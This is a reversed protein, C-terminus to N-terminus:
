TADHVHCPENDRAEDLAKSVMVIGASSSRRLLPSPPARVAAAETALMVLKEVGKKVGDEKRLTVAMAAAASRMADDVSDLAAAVDAGTTLALQKKLGVGTGLKNLRLGWWHQDNKMVPTVICPIGARMVAAVTGAGGHVVAADCM